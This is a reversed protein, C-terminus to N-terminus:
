YSSFFLGYALIDRIIQIKAGTYFGKIGKYSYIDNIM